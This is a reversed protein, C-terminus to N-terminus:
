SHWYWGPCPKAVQSTVELGVQFETCQEAGLPGRGGLPWKSLANCRFKLLSNQASLTLEPRVARKEDKIISGLVAMVWGPEAAREEVALVTTHGSQVSTKAARVDGPAHAHNRWTRLESSACGQGVARKGQRSFSVLFTSVHGRAPRHSQERSAGEWRGQGLRKEGDRDPVDIEARLNLRSDCIVPFM